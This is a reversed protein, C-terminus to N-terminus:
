KAPNDLRLAGALPVPGLGLLALHGIACLLSLSIEITLLLVMPFHMGISKDVWTCQVVHQINIKGEDRLV